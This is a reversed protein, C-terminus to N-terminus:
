KVLDGQPAKQNPPNTGKLTLIYSSVEQIQSPSLQAQWPIMGKTPVGYKITKFVENISGGHLWYDDTLNPGVSGEGLKGHCAACNTMFITEGNKIRTADSLLTVSTEDMKSAALKMEVEAQAMEAQYEEEQVNGTGLVHFYWMYVLAFVITAYFMYVWWPPLRNDLEHIGDYNHDLLIEHEREIPVADTFKLIDPTSNMQGSKRASTLFISLAYLVYMLVLLVVMSIVLVAVLVIQSLDMGKSTAEATAGQAFSSSSFFCLLFTFIITLKSKM